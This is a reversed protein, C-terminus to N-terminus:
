TLVNYLTFNTTHYLQRKKAFMSSGFPKHSHVSSYWIIRGLKSHEPSRLIQDRGKCTQQGSEAQFYEILFNLIRNLYVTM